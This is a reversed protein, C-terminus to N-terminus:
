VVPTLLKEDNFYSVLNNITLDAMAQHTEVTNSRAIDVRTGASGLAEQM